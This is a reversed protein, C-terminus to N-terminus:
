RDSFQFTTSNGYKRNSRECNSKQYAPNKQGKKTKEPQLNYIFGTLDVVDFIAYENIVQKITFINAELTKREFNIEM